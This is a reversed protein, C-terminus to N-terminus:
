LNSEEGGAAQESPSRTVRPVGRAPTARHGYDVDWRIHHYTGVDPYLVTYQIHYDSGDQIIDLDFEDVPKLEEGDSDLVNESRFIAVHPNGLHTPLETIKMRFFLFKTPRSILFGDEGTSVGNVTAAACVLQGPQFRGIQPILTVNWHRWWGFLSQEEDQQIALDGIPSSGDISQLSWSRDLDSVSELSLLLGSDAVQSVDSKNVVTASSYDVRAGGSSITWCKRLGLTGWGEVQEVAQRYREEPSIPIRSEEPAWSSLWEGPRTLGLSEIGLAVKFLWTIPPLNMLGQPCRNAVFQPALQAIWLVLIAGAIGYRLFLTFLVPSLSQPIMVSTGPWRHANPFSTLQAIFFVTTIVMFQRGALFRRTGLESRFIQHLAFTRPFQERSEYLDKLRLTTVSIHLAEVAGLFILLCVFVVLAALGFHILSSQGTLLNGVVLYGLLLLLFLAFFSTGLRWLRSRISSAKKFLDDPIEVELLSEIHRALTILQTSSDPVGGDRVVIAATRWLHGRDANDIGV